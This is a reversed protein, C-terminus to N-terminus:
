EITDAWMDELNQNYIGKSLKFDSANKSNYTDLQSQLETRLKDVDDVDKLGIRIHGTKKNYTIFESSSSNELWKKSPFAKLFQKFLSTQNENLFDEYSEAILKTM